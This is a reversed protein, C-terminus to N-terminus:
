RDIPGTSLPRSSWDIAGFALAYDVSRSVLTKEVTPTSQKLLRAAIAKTGPDRIRAVKRTLEHQIVGRSSPNFTWETELWNMAAFARMEPVTTQMAKEYRARGAIQDGEGFAILGSTAEYTSSHYGVQLPPRIKRFERAAAAFDNARAYSVVLNNRLLQDDPNCRLGETACRIGLEGRALIGGAICSSMIAPRSSFPEDLQWALAEDLAADWREESWARWARAEMAHPNTLQDARVVLGRNAQAHYQIHALVNDTPHILAIDYLKRARRHGGAADELFAAATALETIHEPGYEYRLVLGAARAGFASPRELMQALSIESSMLWPDTPTRPHRRLLVHAEEVRNLHVLLRAHTRLVIRHDPALSLASIMAREAQRTHNLVAYALALDLWHKPNRPAERLRGRAYAIVKGAENRNADPDRGLTPLRSTTRMAGSRIWEATGSLTEPLRRRQRHLFIAAETASQPQGAACACSIVEIASLVGHDRHWLDLARTLSAEAGGFAVRHSPDGCHEATLPMHATYRWRPVLGRRGDHARATM